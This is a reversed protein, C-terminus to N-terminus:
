KPMPADFRAARKSRVDELSAPGKGSGGGLVCAPGHFEAGSSGRQNDLLPRIERAFGTLGKTTKTWADLQEKILKAKRSFHEAIVNAFVPHPTKRKLPALIGYQATLARVNENYEASKRTGEATGIEKDFGPECFYPDSCLIHSQISVLLQLVTSKNKGQSQWGEDPSGHWTGLM